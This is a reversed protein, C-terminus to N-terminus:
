KKKQPGKSPLDRSCWLETAPDRYRIRRIAAMVGGSFFTELARQNQEVTRVGLAVLSKARAFDFPPTGDDATLLLSPRDVESRPIHNIAIDLARYIVKPGTTLSARSSARFNAVNVALIRDFGMEKAIRVPLNNVLGGDVLYTDGEVLPDFFPPFSMSARVARAVSGTCLVIEMGSLLDVANCRFPIRTQDFTKGGTLEELLALARNGSDIGPKTALNGLLQGAQLVKAVPGKLKFAFGDLQQRIDFKEVAFTELEGPSMGCVYLGGVIAGMSAGVVLSPEPVGLSELAKLVGVHAFGKAGGGSLVLAWRLKKDIKM